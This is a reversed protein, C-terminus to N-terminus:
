NEKRTLKGIPPLIMGATIENGFEDVLIDGEFVKKGNKDKGLMLRADHYTNVQNVGAKNKYHIEINRM